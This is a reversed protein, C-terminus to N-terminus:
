GRREAAAALGVLPQGWDDLSLPPPVAYGLYLNAGIDGTAWKAFSEAFREARPACAGRTGGGCGWGPPIEADLRAALRADVLEHDVVHGLEHLVLRDIGRVGYRRSVTGLDLTVLYAHPAVSATLGVPSGGVPGVHVEVLGDVADVVRRADPRASAIAALVAQRDLTATAADFRLTGAGLRPTAAARTAAHRTVLVAALAVVLLVAIRVAPPFSRSVGM